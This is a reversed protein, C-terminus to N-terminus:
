VRGAKLMTVKAPCTLGGGSAITYKELPTVTEQGADNVPLLVSSCLGVKFEVPQAVLVLGMVLRLPVLWTVM